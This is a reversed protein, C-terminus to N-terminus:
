HPESVSFGIAIPALAFGAAQSTMFTMQFLSNATILESEEVILPITSGEAPAFPQSVVAVAFTVVYLGLVDRQFLAYLLVGAVRIINTAVLITRKPVRDVLVGSLSSFLVTPIQVLIITFGIGAPKKGTLEGGYHDPRVLPQKPGNTLGDAGVLHGSLRSQAVGRPVGHTAPQSPQFLFPIRRRPHRL